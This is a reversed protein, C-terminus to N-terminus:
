ASSEDARFLAEDTRVLHDLLNLTWTFLRTEPIAVDFVRRNDAAYLEMWSGTDFVLCYSGKKYEVSRKIEAWGSAKLAEAFNSFETTMRAGTLATVTDHM